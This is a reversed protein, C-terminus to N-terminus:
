RLRIRMTEIFLEVANQLESAIEEKQFMPM